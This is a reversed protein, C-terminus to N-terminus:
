NYVFFTNKKPQVNNFNLNWDTEILEDEDDTECNVPHFNNYHEMLDENAQQKNRDKGDINKTKKQGHFVM